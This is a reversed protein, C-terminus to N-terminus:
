SSPELVKVEFSSYNRRRAKYDIADSNQAVMYM